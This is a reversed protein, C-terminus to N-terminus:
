PLGRKQWAATFACIGGSSMGCIARGDPEDTLKYSKGVEPIIEDLLFRAYQDSLTDYEFSRHTSKLETPPKAPDDNGPNIFIGITVPMQGKAILNDFVVPVRVPGQPNAYAWGDQFIMVCAPTISKYQAPVYIWYDRITSEFITSKWQHKTLTGKPVGDQPQSDPGLKYDDIARCPRGLILVCLAALIVWHKIKM